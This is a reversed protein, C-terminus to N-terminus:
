KAESNSQQVVLKHIYEDTKPDTYILLRDNVREIIIPSENFVNKNRPMVISPFYRKRNDVDEILYTILLTEHNPEHNPLIVEDRTENLAPVLFVKEIGHAFARIIFIQDFYEAMITNIPAPQFHIGKGTRGSLLVVTYEHLKQFKGDKFTIMEFGAGWNNKLSEASVTELGLWYSILYQNLVLAGDSDTINTYFPTKQNLFDLFQEKGSGAAIAREYRDNTIEQYEGIGRITFEFGNEVVKSMLIISILEDKDEKEYHLVFDHFEEYTFTDDKLFTSIRNLFTYMQDGRGGLAVCLRKNIVYLKQRLAAPKKNMQVLLSDTGKVFTPIEMIGNSESSSILLDAMMVPYGHNLTLAILTM